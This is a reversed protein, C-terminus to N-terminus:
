ANSRYRGSIAGADGAVAVHAAGVEVPRFGFENSLRVRVKEGGLSIRVVKVYVMTSRLGCGCLEAKRRDIAVGLKRESEATLHLGDVGDTTVVSGANLDPCLGLYDFRAPVLVFLCSPTSFNIVVKTKTNTM